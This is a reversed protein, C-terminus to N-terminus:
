HRDETCQLLTLVAVHWDDKLSPTQIENRHMKDVAFFQKNKRRVDHHRKLSLQTTDDSENSSFYIKTM